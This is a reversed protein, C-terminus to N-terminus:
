FYCLFKLELLINLYIEYNTIDFYGIYFAHRGTPVDCSCINGINLFFIHILMM